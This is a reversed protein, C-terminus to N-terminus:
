TSMLFHVEFSKMEAEHCERSRTETIDGGLYSAFPPEPELFDWPLMM